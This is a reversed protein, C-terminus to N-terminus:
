GLRGRGGLLDTVAAQLSRRDDPDSYIRVIDMFGAISGILPLSEIPILEYVTRGEEKRVTALSTLTEKSPTYPFAPTTPVDVYIRMADVGATKSLRAAVRRRASERGFLEGIVGRKRQVLEEFVCKVLRRNQFDVALRKAEKTAKDGQRLHVLRDLVVEDTLQLYDDVDSVDTLHLVDDALEMSHALMIQAARVTRHFYVNKFMQYRALLMAEFAPVAAQDLALRGREVSLSDIVRHVDAMGYEVGTFYSDRLLYDMLDASLGGAIIEKAFTPSRPDRGVALGSLRKSSFGHKGLIDSVSSKRVILQTIDEHVKGKKATLVEDFMHSFPGHGVDHLLAALRIQQSLETDVESREALSRTIEGALNMAGLVHEFRTHVAGPYVLYTGALQHIRRLRQLFPSDIVEREVETVRVYGHVPDRIEGVTRLEKSPM